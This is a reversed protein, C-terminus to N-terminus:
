PIVPGAVPDAAQEEPLPQPPQPPQPQYSPRPQHSALSAPKKRVNKALQRSLSPKPPSIRDLNKKFRQYEAYPLLEKADMLISVREARSISGDAMAFCVSDCLGQRAALEGLRSSAASALSQGFAALTMLFCAAGLISRLRM